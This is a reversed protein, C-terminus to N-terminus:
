LKQLLDKMGVILDDIRKTRNALERTYIEMSETNSQIADLSKKISIVSVVLIISIFIM